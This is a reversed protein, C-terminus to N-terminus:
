DSCQVSQIIDLTRASLEAKFRERVLVVEKTSEVM